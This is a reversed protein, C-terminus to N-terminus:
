NIIVNKLAGFKEKLKDHEQQLEVHQINLEEYNTKIKEYPDRLKHCEDVLNAMNIVDNSAYLKITETIIKLIPNLKGILGPWNSEPLQMIIDALFCVLLERLEILELDKILALIKEENYSSLLEINKYIIKDTYKNTAVFRTVPMRGKRCMNNADKCTKISYFLESIITAVINTYPTKDM